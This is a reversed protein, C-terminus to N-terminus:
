GVAEQAQGSHKAEAFAQESRFRPISGAALQDRGNALGDRAQDALQRVLNCFQDLVSHGPLRHSQLEMDPGSFRLYMARGRSDMELELFPICGQGEAMAGWAVRRLARFPAKQAGAAEAVTFVLADREVGILRAAFTQAPLPRQHVPKEVPVPPLKEKEVAAVAPPQSLEPEPAFGPPHPLSLFAPILRQQQLDPFSRLVKLMRDALARSGLDIKREFATLLVEILEPSQIGSESLKILHNISPKFSGDRRLMLLMPEVLIPWQNRRQVALVLATFNRKTQVPDDMELSLHFRRIHTELPCDDHLCVQNLVAMAKDFQGAQVWKDVEFSQKVPDAAPAKSKTAAFDWGILKFLFATALGFGFGAIHASYAVNSSDGDVWQALIQLGVWFPIVLYAPAQFTGRWWVNFYYWFTIKVRGFYVLFLGLLGSIAGSAGMLTGPRYSMGLFVMTAFLGAALYFGLFRLRGM